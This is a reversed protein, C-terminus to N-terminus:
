VKIVNVPGMQPGRRRHAVGARKVFDKIFSINTGKTRRQPVKGQRKFFRRDWDTRSMKLESCLKQDVTFEENWITGQVVYSSENASSNCYLNVEYNVRKFLEVENRFDDGGEAIERWLTKNFFDYLRYDLDSSRYHNEQLKEPIEANKYSYSRYNRVQRDYLIDQLNWCLKIKLLVLSEDYYELIMVHDFETGLEQIRAQAMKKNGSYWPSIGMMFAQWNRTKLAMTGLFYKPDSLFDELPNEKRLGLRKDVHFYNISSKLHSLPYRLIALFVANKQMLNSMQPRNYRLHHLMVDYPPYFPPKVYTLDPRRLVSTDPNQPLMITLNNTWVFRQLICATNHSGAKHVKIFVFSKRTQCHDALAPHNWSVDTVNIEYGVDEKAHSKDTINVGSKVHGSPTKGAMIFGCICRERGEWGSRSLMAAM